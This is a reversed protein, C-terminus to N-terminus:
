AKLKQKLSYILRSIEEVKEILLKSRSEDLYGLDRAIYIQCRVEFCSGQAIDLFRSFEKEGGRGRGEVINSEISVAARRIQNTLGFQENSPFKSTLRYLNITFNHAKQWTQLKTFDPM